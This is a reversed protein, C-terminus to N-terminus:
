SEGEPFENSVPKLPVNRSVTAALPKGDLVEQLASVPVYLSSEGNDFTVVVANRSQCLRINGVKEYPM